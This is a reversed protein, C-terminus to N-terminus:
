ISIVVADERPLKDILSFCAQLSELFCTDGYVEFIGFSVYGGAMMKTMISLISKIKKYLFHCTSASVPNTVLVKSYNM